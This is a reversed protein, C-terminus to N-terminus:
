FGDKAFKPVRSGNCRADPFQSAKRYKRENYKREAEIEGRTREIPFGTIANTHYNWFDRPFNGRQTQEPTLTKLDAWKKNYSM